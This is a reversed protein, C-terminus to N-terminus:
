IRTITTRMTMTQGQLESAFIMKESVIIVVRSKLGTRSGGEAFLESRTQRLERPV